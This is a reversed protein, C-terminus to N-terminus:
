SMLCTRIRRVKNTLRIYQPMAPDLQTQGGGGSAPGPGAAGGRFVVLQLPGFKRPFAERGGRVLVAEGDLGWHELDEADSPPASLAASYALSRLSIAISSTSPGVLEVGAAVVRLGRVAAELASDIAQSAAARLVAFREAAVSRDVEDGPVPFRVAFRSPVLMQKEMMFKLEGAYRVLCTNITRLRDAEAMSSPVTHLATKWAEAETEGQNASLLLCTSLVM